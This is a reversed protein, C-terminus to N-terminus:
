ALTWVAAAFVGGALTAIFDIVEVTHVPPQGAKAALRNDRWDKAEKGAGFCAAAAIAWMPASHIRLAYCVMMAVLAIVAGYLVHMAKDLPLQPLNM